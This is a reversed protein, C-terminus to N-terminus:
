PYRMRIRTTAGPGNVALRVSKLKPASFLIRPNNSFGFGERPIGFGNRDLKGNGNADHYLALGYVGPNPVYLCAQTVGAQAPVHVVYLSGMPKLFRVPDDPYLTLVIFGASNHVQEVSITLWTNSVPGACGAPAGGGARAAGGLGVALGAAVLAAAVTRQRILRGRM